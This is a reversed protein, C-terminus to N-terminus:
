NQHCDIGHAPTPPRDLFLVGDVEDSTLRTARSNAAVVLAALLQVEAALEDDTLQIDFPDKSRRVPVHHVLAVKLM